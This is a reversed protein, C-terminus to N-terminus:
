EIRYIIAPDKQDRIYLSEYPPPPGSNVGTGRFLKTWEVALQQEIEAERKLSIEQIFVSIQKFGKNLQNPNGPSILCQADVKQINQILEKTPRQNIANSLFNFIATMEPSILYSADM